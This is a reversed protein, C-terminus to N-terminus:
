IYEYRYAPINRARQEMAAQILMESKKVNPKADVVDVTPHMNVADKQQMTQMQPMQQTADM